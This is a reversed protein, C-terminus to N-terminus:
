LAVLGRDWQSARPVESPGAESDYWRFFLSAPTNIGGDRGDTPQPSPWPVCVPQACSSHGRCDRYPLGFGAAQMSSSTILPWPSAWVTGVRGGAWLSAPQEQACPERKGKNMALGWLPLMQWQECQARAKKEGSAKM